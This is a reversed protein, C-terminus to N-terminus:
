EYRLTEVPKLSAAQKAPLVGSLMGIIFAFALAGVILYWPSPAMLLKTGLIQRGISAVLNSFGLGLLVGIVGGVLGLFGSEIMFLFLIDSNRAGIAKMIGIEKRRELVTTYMTNMIGIAGVLLSIAAIGVLVTQVINLITLFSTLYEQLTKVAFDEQGEKQNREKRLEKKISEAVDDPTFEKNVQVIITDPYEKTDFLEFYTDRPIIVTRDDGEDGLKDKVGVVEFEQNNIIITSGPHLNKKFATSTAYDHGVVAKFKDDPKLYRCEIITVAYVEQTLSSEDNKTPNGSVFYFGIDEKGWKIESVKFNTLAVTKVGRVRNIVKEDDEKLQGPTDEDPISNYVNGAPTVIIKDSGLKKFETEIAKELGQGLSILGVVAAIGIFIGIMTLWSRLKRKGINSTAISFYEIIKAM